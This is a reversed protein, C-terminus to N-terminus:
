HIFLSNKFFCLFDRRIIPDIDRIELDSIIKWGQSGKQLRDDKETNHHQIFIIPTDSLRAKSILTQLNKIIKSENYIPLNPINFLDNQVDIILLGTNATM